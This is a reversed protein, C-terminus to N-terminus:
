MVSNNRYRILLHSCLIAEELIVTNNICFRRILKLDLGLLKTRIMLRQLHLAIPMVDNVTLTPDDWQHIVIWPEMRALTRWVSDRINKRLYYVYRFAPSIFGDKPYVNPLTRTSELRECVDVALETTKVFVALSYVCKPNVSIVNLIFYRDFWPCAELKQGIRRWAEKSLDHVHLTQLMFDMDNAWTPYIEFFVESKLSVALAFDRNNEILSRPFRTIFDNCGDDKELIRVVAWSFREKRAIHKPIYDYPTSWFIGRIAELCYLETEWFSSPFTDMLQKAEKKGGQFQRVAALCIEVDQRLELAIRQMHFGIVNLVGSEVLFEKNKRFYTASQLIQLVAEDGELLLVIQGGWEGWLSSPVSGM